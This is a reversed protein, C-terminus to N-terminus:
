RLNNSNDSLFSEWKLATKTYSEAIRKYIKQVESENSIKSVDNSDNPPGVLGIIQLGIIRISAKIKDREIQKCRDDTLQLILQIHIETEFSITWIGSSREQFRRRIIFRFSFM